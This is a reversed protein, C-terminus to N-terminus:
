RFSNPLARNGDGSGRTVGAWLNGKSDEYLGFVGLGLGGDAGFCQVNSNHFECLKGTPTASGGAWLSGQRDELLSQVIFGDLGPLSHAQWEELQGAGQLHRDLSQRRALNPTDLNRHFSSESRVAAALSTGSVM